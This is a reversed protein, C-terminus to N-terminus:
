LEFDGEQHTTNTLLEKQTRTVLHILEPVAGDSIPILLAAALRQPDLSPDVEWDAARRVGSNTPGPLPTLGSARLRSYAVRCAEAVRGARLLDLVRPEAHIRLGSQGRGAMRWRWCALRDDWFPLLPRPLFLLKLLAYARPMPPAPQPTLSAPAPFNARHDILILGWLLEALRKEDVAGVLFASVAEPRAGRRFAMGLDEANTRLAEMLRREFIASLNASLSAQTWTVARRLELWQWRGKVLGVPELNQRLAGPGNEAASHLGALSLALEFEVSGDDIEQVWRSSLGGLPPAFEGGSRRGGTVALEREAQGLAALVGEVEERRGYRCLDYIRADIRRLSRVYRAPANKQFAQRFDVLWGDIERILDLAGARKRPVSVRELPAALYTRGYRKFFGYRVFSSIGRDVGLTAVARAFELADRAPRGGFEARGEGFILRLEAATSPREWLPLWLEGRSATTDSEGTAASGVPLTRVTFPFSAGEARGAGYRRVVAGALMLAGEIMLVFDWPNDVPEGKMGQTANPGGARGPAFQGIAGGGLRDVLEAFLSNKLLQRSASSSRAGTLGLQVLREMFNQSFDLRGDNGGTGLLPAYTPGERELAMAADMWLLFPEPMECRLRRLLFGKQDENPKQKVGTQSLVKRACDIAQHYCALRPSTSAAIADLARKNDKPFFGSGGAWPTLIPTPSYDNLLFDVLADRDLKSQLTFREQRWCGTAKRDRQDNVLRLVGIAKLYSMLPEPSCGSLEINHQM